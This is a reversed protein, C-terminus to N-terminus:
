AWQHFFGRAVLRLIRAIIRLALAGKQAGNRGSDRGTFSRKPSIDSVKQRVKTLLVLRLVM